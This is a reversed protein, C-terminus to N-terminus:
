NMSCENSRTFNNNFTWQNYKQTSLQIYNNIDTKTNNFETTINNINNLLDLLLNISTNM